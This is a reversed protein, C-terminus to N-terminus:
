LNNKILGKLVDIADNAIDKCDKNITFGNFKVESEQLEIQVKNLMINIDNDPLDNKTDVVFNGNDDMVLWDLTVQNYDAIVILRTIDIFKIVDKKKLDLLWDGPVGM